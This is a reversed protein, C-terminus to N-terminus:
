LSRDFNSAHRLDLRVTQYVIHYPGVHRPDIDRKFEPHTAIPRRNRTRVRDAACAAIVADVLCAAIRKPLNGVKFSRDHLPASIVIAGVEISGSTMAPIGTKLPSEDLASVIRNFSAAIRLRRGPRAKNRWPSGACVKEIM